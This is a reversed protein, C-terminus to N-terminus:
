EGVRNLYENKHCAFRQSLQLGPHALQQLITAERQMRSLAAPHAQRGPRLVKVAVAHGTQLDLARWVLSTAGSGVQQLLQYRGALTAAPLAPDPTHSDPASMPHTNPGEGGTLRSTPSPQPPLRNHDPYHRLALAYEVAFKEM